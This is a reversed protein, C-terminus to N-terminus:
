LMSFPMQMNELHRVAILSGLAKIVAHGDILVCTKIDTEPLESLINTQGKLIDILEAKSTSHM